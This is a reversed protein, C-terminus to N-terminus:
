CIAFRLCFCLCLRMHVVARRALQVEMMETNACHRTFAQENAAPKFHLNRHLFASLM